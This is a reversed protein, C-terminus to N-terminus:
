SGVTNCVLPYMKLVFYKHIDIYSYLKINLHKNTTYCLIATVKDVNILWAAVTFHRAHVTLMQKNNLICLVM